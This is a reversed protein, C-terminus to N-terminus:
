NLGVYELSQAFSDVREATIYEAKKKSARINERRFLVATIWRVPWFLPLLWRAKHLIPYRGAMEAANPFIMRLVMRNRGAKASSANKTNKYGEFIIRQERTGWSGSDFIFQSIFETKEDGPAAEFWLALLKLINDHFDKLKLIKLQEELYIQDLDPHLRRFVWLDVVQRLGVGGRRYHKVLHAFLFIYSDEAPMAYHHGEQCIAREWGDGIYQYTDEDSPVLRRHLELEIEKNEWVFAHDAIEGEAYGLSQVLPRIVKYQNLRILIDADTMTRMEPKPYMQKLMCGKVPLYDIGNEEFVSLLQAVAHMQANSRFVIQCYLQFLRRMAPDSKPVDCLVAGEYALGVIQHQIIQNEADSMRFKEPLDLKKGTIASRILTVIGQQIVDM